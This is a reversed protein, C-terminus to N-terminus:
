KALGEARALDMGDVLGKLTAMDVNDGQAEINIRPGVLVSYSGSKASNDYDETVVRGNSSVIKKYGTATTETRNVNVAQAMATLGSMSGLDSVKLRVTGAGLAYTAEANAVAIGGAQDASTTPNSRSAGQYTEPMLALLQAPDVTAVTAQGAQMASAQAEMQKTAAELKALDLSGAGPVAVTGVAAGTAGTAAGSLFGGPMGFKYIPASLLSFVLGLVIMVIVTVATYGVAKEQPVNMLKPLGVYLLYLSYLGLIGLMALPPLIAFIGALWGATGSYAAVKFARLQNKQGGFSPALADIVLALVFVMVLALVFQVVAGTAAWMLPTKYSILGPIGVGFVSMGIASAIPGIAALPIIYGLYISKIDAPENAIVDWTPSPKLLINKVRDILPPAPQSPKSVTESM